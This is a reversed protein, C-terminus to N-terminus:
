EDKELIFFIYGYYDSYKRYMNIELQFSEILELASSDNKYKERFVNLQEQQPNYYNWWARAPLKFYDIPRYGTKRIVELAGEQDTMDPCHGDWFAQLEATPDPKFWFIETVAICGGPKLYKKWQKLGQEFGIIFISGETWIIDFSEPEFEMKTMDGQLCQIKDSLGETKLRSQLVDLFPQHRDLAIIKGEILKALQITQNGKGCGIDLISLPQPLTKKSTIANFAKLTTEKTRPGLLPLTEFIEYFLKEM